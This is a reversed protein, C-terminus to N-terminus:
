SKRVNRKSSPVNQSPANSQLKNKM